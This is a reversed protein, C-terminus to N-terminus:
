GSPADSPIYTKAIDLAPHTQESGLTPSRPLGSVWSLKFGKGRVRCAPLEEDQEAGLQVEQVLFPRIEPLVAILCPCLPRARKRAVHARGRGM